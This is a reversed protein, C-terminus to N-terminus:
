FSCELLKPDVTSGIYDLGKYYGSKDEAYNAYIGTLFVKFTNPDANPIRSSKFYVSNSDKSYTGRKCGEYITQWLIEFTKPDAGLIPEAGFYVTKGDTGYSHSGGGNEIPVFTALIVGPLSKGNYYVNRSDKAYLYYVDGMMPELSGKLLEFTASDAGSIVDDRYYIVTGTASYPSLWGGFRDTGGVPVGRDIKIEQELSESPWSAIPNDGPCIFGDAEVCRKSNFENKFFHFYGSIILVELTIILFGIKIWTLQPM